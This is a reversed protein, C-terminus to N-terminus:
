SRSQPTRNRSRDRGYPSRRTRRRVLVIAALEIALLAPAIVGSVATMEEESLGGACATLNGGEYLPACDHGLFLAVIFWNVLLLPVAGLAILLRSHSM